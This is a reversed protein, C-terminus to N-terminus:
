QMFAPSFFHHPITCGTGEDNRGTRERQSGGRKWGKGRGRGRGERSGKSTPGKFVALPDPL